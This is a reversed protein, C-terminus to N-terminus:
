QPMMKQTKVSIPKTISITTFTTHTFLILMMTITAPAMASSTSGSGTPNTGASFTSLISTGILSEMSPMIPMRTKTDRQFRAQSTVTMAAMMKLIADVHKLKDKPPTYDGKHKRMQILYDVVVKFDSRYMKLQEDTQWALEVLNMHYDNVYREMGEPIELSKKLSKPGDWHRKCDMFLVLTVVPYKQREGYQSRYAAGDNGYLRFCIERDVNTQNELGLFAIRVTAHKWWKAVDREQEKIVGDTAKFRSRDKANELSEPNVVQRGNFLNVNIIDAFVDDYDELHKEEIDKVGM